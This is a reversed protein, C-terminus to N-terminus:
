PGTPLIRAGTARARRAASGRCSPQGCGGRAIGRPNWARPLVSLGATSLVASGGLFLLLSASLLAPRRTMGFSWTMGALLFWGTTPLWGGPRQWAGGLVGFVLFPLAALLWLAPQAVALRRAPPVIVFFLACVLLAVGYYAGPTAALLRSQSIGSASLSLAALVITLVPVVTDRKM